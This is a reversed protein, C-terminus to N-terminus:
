VPNALKYPTGAADGDGFYIPVAGGALAAALKETAYGTDYRCM